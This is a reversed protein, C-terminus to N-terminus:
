ASLIFNCALKVFHLASDLFFDAMEGIIGIQFGFSDAFFDAALQALLDTLQFFDYFFSSAIKTRGKRL